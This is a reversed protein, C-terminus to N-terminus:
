VAKESTNKVAASFEQEIEQFFLLNSVAPIGSTLALCPNQVKSPERPNKGGSEATLFINLTSEEKSPPSQIAVV